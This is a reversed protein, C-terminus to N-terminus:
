ENIRRKKKDVFQKYSSLVTDQFVFDKISMRVAEHGMNSNFDKHWTRQKMLKETLHDIDYDKPNSSIRIHRQYMQESKHMPVKPKQASKCRFFEDLEEGHFVKLQERELDEVQKQNPQGRTGVLPFSGFTENRLDIEGREM